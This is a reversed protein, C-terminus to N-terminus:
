HSPCKDDEITTEGSYGFVFARIQWQFLKNVIANREKDGTAYKSTRYKDFYTQIFFECGKSATEEVEQFTQVPLFLVSNFGKVTLAHGQMRLMTNKLVLPEKNVLLKLVFENFQKDNLKKTQTLFYHLDGNTIIVKGNYVNSKVDLPVFYGNRVSRKENLVKNYFGENQSFCSQALLLCICFQLIVKM